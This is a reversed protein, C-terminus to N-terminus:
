RLAAAMVALKAVTNMNRATGTTAAPSRLKSQGVGDPYYVYIERTGLSLQENLQNAITGLATSAPPSDLFIALTKSPHMEPFPNASSVAAMEEMTRVLVGIPKGAYAEVAQELAQKVQSEPKGSLFVVNGSAIYTKVKTFGLRECMSKLEAMPLKNNGTVNVARLLAIYAPM